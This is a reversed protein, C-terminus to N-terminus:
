PWKTSSRSPFTTLSVGHRPTTLPRLSGGDTGMLIYDPDDPRFAITHNDSHRDGESLRRFTKGHDDSIQVRVDMLYLRGEAHPSAYLEQYYHPGTARSVTDSMKTWSGGQDRSLFLGGSTRDLEIAAYVYDPNHTSIALGKKGLHSDPIGKSTTTWTQAGDTSKHLGSGPGGGVYAAVNRHRQWTAAYLVDADRTDIVIDTVGM